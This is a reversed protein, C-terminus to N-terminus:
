ARRLCGKNRVMREEMADSRLIRDVLDPFVEPITTASFRTKLLVRM